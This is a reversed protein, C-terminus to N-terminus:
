NIVLRNMNGGGEGREAQKKGEENKAVQLKLQLLKKLDNFMNMQRLSPEHNEKIM